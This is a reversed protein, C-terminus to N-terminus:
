EFRSGKNMICKQYRENVGQCMSIIIDPPINIFVIKITSILDDRSNQNFSTVRQQVYNWFLSFDMPTLDPSNPSFEFKDSKLGIWRNKLYVNMWKLTNMWTHPAAGDEM